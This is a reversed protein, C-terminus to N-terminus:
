PKPSAFYQNQYKINRKESAQSTKFINRSRRLLINIKINKHQAERFSTGSQL